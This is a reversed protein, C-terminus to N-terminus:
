AESSDEELEEKKERIFLWACFALCSLFGALFGGSIVYKLKRTKDNPLPKIPEDIINILPTERALDLKLMEINKIMETYTTSLIQIDTEIKLQNVATIQGNANRNGDSFAARKNLSKDLDKRISDAKNQFSNINKRALSTKTDIHFECVEKLHASSFAQAFDEDSHLFSFEM